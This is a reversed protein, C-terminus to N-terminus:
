HAINENLERRQAPQPHHPLFVTFTAGGEPNNSAQLRGNLKQAYLRSIYLGLGLGPVGETRSGRFFPQFLLGIEAKPIGPGEDRVRIEFAKRPAHHLEVEIRSGQPSYKVANALLNLLIDYVKVEDTWCRSEKETAPSPKPFLIEINKRQADKRITRVVDYILRALSVEALDVKMERESLSLIGDIIGTMHRAQRLLELYKEERQGPKDELFGRVLVGLDSRMKFVPAGLNHAVMSFLRNKMTEQEFSAQRFALAQLLPGWTLRHLDFREIGKAGTEWGFLYYGFSETPESASPIPVVRWELLPDESGL